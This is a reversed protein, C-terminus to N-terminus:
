EACDTQDPAAKRAIERGAAPWNPPWSAARKTPNQLKEGQAAVLPPVEDLTSSFLRAIGSLAEYDARARRVPAMGCPVRHSRQWARHAPASSHPRNEGTAYHTGGCASVTSIPLPSLASTGERKHAQAARPDEAADRFKVSVPRNEFVFTTPTNRPQGSSVPDLARPRHRDHLLDAGFTSVSQPAKLLEAPRGLATHGTHQQMHDFADHGTSVAASKPATWRRVSFM